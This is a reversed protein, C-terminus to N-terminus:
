TGRKKATAENVHWEYVADLLVTLKEKFLIFNMTNLKAIDRGKGIFSYVFWKFLQEDIPGFPEDGFLEDITQELNTQFGNM